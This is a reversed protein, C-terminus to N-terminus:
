STQEPLLDWSSLALKLREVSADTPPCLPLRLEGAELGMLNLATKVPIPNVECFLADCLPKLKLQLRGAASFDNALCLATLRHMEAPLVNAVVSIVGSGGLMCIAATEDDNGSWISFDAPCLNRTKQIQSFNGSAEKVGAINPHQALEAYTEPQINVGTRSPVNYVILPRDVADAVATFHRVLGRQTAKNYYPTVVLVGDAGAACAERSLAIASATNNSGTGVIVPVRGNVQRVSREIIEAREAYTLTAGEGTTACLILADTGSAIHWEILQELAPFDIGDPTMPTVLAVGSGRFLSRSM